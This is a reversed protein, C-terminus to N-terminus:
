ELGPGKPPRAEKSDPDDFDLVVRGCWHCKGEADPAHWGDPSHRCEDGDEYGFREFIEWPSLPMVGVGHQRRFSRARPPRSSRDQLGHLLRGDV